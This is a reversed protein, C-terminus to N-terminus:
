ESPAVDKKKNSIVKTRYRGDYVGQEIQQKRVSSMQKKHEIVDKKKKSNKKKM